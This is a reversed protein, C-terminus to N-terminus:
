KIELQQAKCTHLGRIDPHVPLAGNGRNLSFSGIVTLKRPFATSTNETVPVVAKNIPQQEHKRGTKEKRQLDRSPTIASM